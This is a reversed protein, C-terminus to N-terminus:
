VFYILCSRQRMLRKCGIAISRTRLLGLKKARNGVVDFLNGILNDLAARQFCGEGFRAQLTLSCAGAM